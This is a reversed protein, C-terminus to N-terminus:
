AREDKAELDYIRQVVTADAEGKAVVEYLGELEAFEDESLPVRTPKSWPSWGGRTMWQDLAEFADVLQDVADWRDIGAVNEAQLERIASRANNLAENPDMM